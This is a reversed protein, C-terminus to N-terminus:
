NAAVLDRLETIYDAVSGILTYAPGDEELDSANGIYFDGADGRWVEDDASQEELLIILGRTNSQKLEQRTLHLGM